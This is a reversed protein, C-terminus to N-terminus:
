LVWGELFVKRWKELTEETHRRMFDRLRSSLAPLDAEWAKKRLDEWGDFYVFLDKHAPDYWESLHMVDKAFPPSWFFNGRNALHFLFDLTPIFYPVGNQWNEFLAFNSWAYPIHIIGRFDKLDNPGGYRGNHVPIQLKRCQGALDMFKTDNHYPPIFFTGSKDVEEPVVRTWDGDLYLGTPKITPGQVAVGKRRAWEREFETYCCVKVSERGVADGFLKYYAPDPFGCDNTAMDCYDFRTCIWIVIKGRFARDQLFVRSLPATDSTVAMDFQEFYERHKAWSRRAREPGINYGDDYRMSEVDLGIRDAVMELESICGNHHSLHVIRM